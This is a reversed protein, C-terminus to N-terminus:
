FVCVFPEQERNYNMMHFVILEEVVADDSVQLVIIGEGRVCQHTRVCVCVCVCVCKCKCLSVCLCVCVSVCVPGLESICHISATLASNTKWQCCSSGLLHYLRLATIVTGCQGAPAVAVAVAM